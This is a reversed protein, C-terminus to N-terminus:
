GGGGLLATIVSGLDTPTSQDPQSLQGYLENSLQQGPATTATSSGPAPPVTASPPAAPAAAADAGPVTYVNDSCDVLGGQSFLAQRLDSLQAPVNAVLGCILDQLNSADVFIKFYAGHQGNPLVDASIGSAFAYLYRSLGYITDALDQQHATVVRVINGGQTLIRDLDPRNVSILSALNDAFPGLTTLLTEFQQRAQNFVPLAENLTSSLQNLVPGYDKVAASFRNFSALATLQADLTNRFLAAMKVGEDFSAAIREGEGNRVTQELETLVTTLKATDIGSLVPDLKAVLTEVEDGIGTDTVTSGDALYPGGTGDTDVLDIFKDGFFTLPQVTARIDDPVKVSNHLHAVVRIQNDVLKISHVKGVEVGRYEVFSGEHLAQGARPLVFTVEMEDNFFGYSARVGITTVGVLVVALVLAAVARTAKTLERADSGSV